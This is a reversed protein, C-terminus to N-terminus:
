IQAHAMLLLLGVYTVALWVNQNRIARSVATKGRRDVLGGSGVSGISKLHLVRLGM